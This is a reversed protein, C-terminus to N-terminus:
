YRTAFIGVKKAFGKKPIAYCPLGCSLTTSVLEERLVPSTRKRLNMKVASRSAEIIEIMPKLRNSQCVFGSTRGAPVYLCHVNLFPDHGAGEEGHDGGDSEEGGAERRQRLLLLLGLLVVLDSSCVDSSWDRSCRTHRRRSSFFFLDSRLYRVPRVPRSSRM